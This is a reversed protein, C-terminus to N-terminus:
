FTGIHAGNDIIVHGDEPQFEPMESFFIDKGISYGIVAKDATNKRYAIELGGFSGITISSPKDPRLGAFVLRLRKYIPRIFVM